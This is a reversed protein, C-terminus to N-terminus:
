KRSVYGRGTSRMAERKAEEEAREMEDAAKSLGQSLSMADFATQVLTQKIEEASNIFAQSAEGQWAGQLESLRAGLQQANDYLNTHTEQAVFSARRLDETNVRIRQPTM